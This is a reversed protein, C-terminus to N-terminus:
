VVKMLADKHYRQCLESLNYWKYLWRSYTLEDLVINSSTSYHLYKDLESFYYSAVREPEYALSCMLKGELILANHTKSALNDKVCKFELFSDEFVQFM